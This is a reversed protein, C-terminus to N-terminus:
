EDEGDWLRVKVGRTRAGKAPKPPMQRARRQKEAEAKDDTMRGAPYQAGIVRVTGGERVVAPAPATFGAADGFRGKARMAKTAAGIAAVDWVCSPARTRPQPAEAAPRTRQKPYDWATDAPDADDELDPPQIDPRQM